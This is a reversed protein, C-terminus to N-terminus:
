LTRCQGRHHLSISGCVRWFTVALRVQNVSIAHANSLIAFTSNGMTPIDNGLILPAQLLSSTALSRLGSSTCLASTGFLSGDGRVKMITWLAFHAQCFQLQMQGAECNFDNGNGVEIM